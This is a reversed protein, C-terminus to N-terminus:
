KMERRTQRHAKSMLKGIETRPHKKKLAKLNKGFRKQYPSVKRTQKSKKKPIPIRDMRSPKLPSSSMGTISSGGSSIERLEASTFGGSDGLLILKLVVTAPNRSIIARLYDEAAKEVRDQSVM